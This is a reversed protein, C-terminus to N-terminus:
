ACDVSRFIYRIDWTFKTVKPLKFATVDSKLSNMQQDYQLWNKTL